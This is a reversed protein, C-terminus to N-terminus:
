PTLYGYKKLIASAQASYLFNYFARAQAPSRKRASKLLVASQAIRSYSATPLELWNGKNQMIPELIVSKATFGLDVAGTVVYQNVQAVSEAFILKPRVAQELQYYALAQLAARGYPAVQPNAVAIKKINQNMVSKLGPKLDLNKTTWLVLTGYGYIRPPMELLGAKSLAEPYQTDASLFVDFPAGQIIQTTLKGSSSFILNIKNNTEKEYADKILRAVFQANAAVAVRVPQDAPPPASFYSILFLLLFYFHM